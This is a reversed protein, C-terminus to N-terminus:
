FCNKVNKVPNHEKIFKSLITDVGYRHFVRLIKQSVQYLYLAYDSSTSLVFKM